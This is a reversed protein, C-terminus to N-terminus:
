FVANFVICDIGFMNLLVFAGIYARVIHGHSMLIQSVQIFSEFSM